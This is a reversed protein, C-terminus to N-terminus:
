REYRKRQGTDDELIFYAPWQDASPPTEGLQVLLTKLIWGITGDARQVKAWVDMDALWTLEENDMLEGLKTSTIDPNEFISLEVIFIPNTTPPTVQYEDLHTRDIWGTKGNQVFNSGNWTGLNVSERGDKIWGTGDVITDKALNDIFGGDSRRYYATDRNTIELM